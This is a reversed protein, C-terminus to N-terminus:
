TQQSLYNKEISEALQFVMMAYNISPNYRTIVYFNNLGLWYEEGEEDELSIFIAKDKPDVKGNPKIDFDEFSAVTRNPKRHKRNAKQAKQYKSGATTAPIAVPKNAQWGNEVLYNAVSGIADVTNNELDIHHQGSFDVAYHRYSSPMFQAQGMAGAYSGHFRMPDLHNERTMLLYEELEKRFFKSRPPYDFALTSLADIVRFKGQHQGYFTEVGLIAIIVKPPIGYQKEAKDLAAKNAVWFDVGQQTRKDSMFIAQYRFWPKGEAPHSMAKIISPKLETNDFLQQLSNQKFHHKTVMYKIFDQVDQRQSLKDEAQASLSCFSCLIALTVLLLKFKM